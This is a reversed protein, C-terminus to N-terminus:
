PRRVKTTDRLVLSDQRTTGFEDITFVVSMLKIASIRMRGLTAGTTVRYQANTFLDRLSSLYPLHEAQAVLGAGVVGVRVQTM